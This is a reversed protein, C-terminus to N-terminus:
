PKKILLRLKKMSLRWICYSISKRIKVFTFVLAQMLSTLLAFLMFPLQLPLGVPWDWHSLVTVGFLAFFGILIDEGVM